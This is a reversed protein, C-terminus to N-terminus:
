APPEMRSKSVMSAQLSALGWTAIFYVPWRENLCQAPPQGANYFDRVPLTIRRGPIKKHILASDARGPNVTVM